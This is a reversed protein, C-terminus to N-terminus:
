WSPVTFTPLTLVVIPDSLKVPYPVRVPGASAPQDPVDDPEVLIWDPNPNDRVVISPEAPAAPAAAHPAPANSAPALSAALAAQVAPPLPPAGATPMPKAGSLLEQDHEIMASLVQPSVGQDKLQIIQDATLNFTGATDTIYALMVSEDVGAQSLREIEYVWPSVHAASALTKNASAGPVTASSASSKSGTPADQGPVVASLPTASAAVTPTQESSSAAPWLKVGDRAFASAVMGIALVSGVIWGPLIRAKM